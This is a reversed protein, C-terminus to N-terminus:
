ETSWYETSRLIGQYQLVVTRVITRVVAAVRMTRKLAVGLVAVIQRLLLLQLQLETM